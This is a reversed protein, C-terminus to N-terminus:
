SSTTMLIMTRRVTSAKWLKMQMIRKQNPGRAPITETWIRPGESEKKEGRHKKGMHMKVSKKSPGKYGCKDCLFKVEDGVVEQRIEPDEKKRVKDKKLKVMPTTEKEDEKTEKQVILVELGEASMRGSIPVSSKQACGRKDLSQVPSIKNM